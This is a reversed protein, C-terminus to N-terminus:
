VGVARLFIRAGPTPKIGKRAATQMVSATLGQPNRLALRGIRLWQRERDAIAARLAAWVLRARSPAVAVVVRPRAARTTAAAERAADEALKRAKGRTM